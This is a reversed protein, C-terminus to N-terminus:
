ALGMEEAILQEFAHTDFNEEIEEPFIYLHKESTATIGKGCYKGKSCRKSKKM